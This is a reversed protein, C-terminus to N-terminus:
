RFSKTINLVKELVHACVRKKREFKQPEIAFSQKGELKEQSRITTDGQKGIEALSSLNSV